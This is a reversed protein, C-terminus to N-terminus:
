GAVNLDRAILGLACTTRFSETPEISQPGLGTATLAHSKFVRAARSPQYRILRSGPDLDPSAAGWVLVETTKTALAANVESRTSADHAYLEASAALATRQDRLGTPPAAGDAVDAGLIRLPRADEGAPLLVTVRWGLKVRDFILGGAFRVVDVVDTSMVSLFPWRAGTMDDM